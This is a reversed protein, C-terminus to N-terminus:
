STAKKTTPYICMSQPYTVGFQYEVRWSVEKALLGSPWIRVWLFLTAEDCIRVPTKCKELDDSDM